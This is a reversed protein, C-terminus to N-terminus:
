GFSKLFGLLRFFHIHVFWCVVFGEDFLGVEELLTRRMVVASPSICCLPLCNEFIRGGSKRHKKMPNVRVGNRIWIEEGHVLPVESHSELFSIQRDLKDALWRDDSDLLAILPSSSANIGANRAASVGQNSQYLYSIRGDNEVYKKVVEATADKSGDDVVYLQWDQFTQELVSDIAKSLWECRNYTPIIVDIKAVANAYFRDLLFAFM